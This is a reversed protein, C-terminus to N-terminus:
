GGYMEMIADIQDKDELRLEGFKDEPRIRSGDLLFRYVGVPRGVKKAFAKFIRAMAMTDPVKFYFDIGTQCTTVLPFAPRLSYRRQKPYVVLITTM